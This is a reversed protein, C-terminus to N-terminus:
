KNTANLEKNYPEIGKKFGEWIPKWRLAIALVLVIFLGIMVKENKSLSNWKIM